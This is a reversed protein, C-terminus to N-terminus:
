TATRSPKKLLAKRKPTPAQEAENALRLAKLKARNEDAAKGTALHEAWAKEGEETQQQKKKFNAEARLRAEEAQDM